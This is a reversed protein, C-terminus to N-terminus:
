MVIQLEKHTIQLQELAPRPVNTFKVNLWRLPTCQEPDLGAHYAKHDALQVLAIPTASKVGCINLRELKRANMALFEFFEVGISLVWALDLEKLKQLRLVADRILQEPVEIYSIGLRELNTCRLALMNLCQDDM